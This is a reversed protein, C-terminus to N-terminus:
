IKWRNENFNLVCIDIITKKNNNTIRLGNKNTITEHDRLCWPLLVLYFAMGM